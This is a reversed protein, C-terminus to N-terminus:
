VRFGAGRCWRIDENMCWAKKSQGNGSRAEPGSDQCAAYVKGCVGQLWAATKCAEVMM